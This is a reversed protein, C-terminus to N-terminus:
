GHDLARGLALAETGLSTGGLVIWSALGTIAPM